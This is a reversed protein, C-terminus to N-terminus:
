RLPLALAGSATHFTLLLINSQYVMSSPTRSTKENAVLTDQDHANSFTRLASSAMVFIHM